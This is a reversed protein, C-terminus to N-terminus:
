KNYSETMVPPLSPIYDQVTLFGLLYFSLTPLFLHLLHCCPTSTYAHCAHFCSASNKNQSGSLSLSLVLLPPLSFHNMYNIESEFRQKIIHGFM